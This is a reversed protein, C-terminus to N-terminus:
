NKEVVQSLYNELFHMLKYKVKASVMSLNKRPLLVLGKSNTGFSTELNDVFAYV